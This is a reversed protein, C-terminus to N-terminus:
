RIPPHARDRFGLPVTVDGGRPARGRPKSADRATNSSRRAQSGATQRDTPKTRYSKPATVLREVDGEVDGSLAM